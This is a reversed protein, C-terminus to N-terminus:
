ETGKLSPNFADRLGNGFLNFCIMLLSIIIAPFVLESPYTSLFAQNKSLIVGLSDLTSLGLGLYSITAESFITSPIMLVSRTVITGVANPLIHRFILTPTKAGLTKSALVYERGRYRYFQSRTTASTGIWGTLCLSLAFVFFNTGLKITLITMLVIYPIGGLIDTIREMTIDVTGGYYGSISGWIVGILINIASVVIGLILSTRLGSFVYKLLDKGQYETGFLHVPIDNYGLYKYMMVQCDFIYVIQNNNTDKKISLIETVSLDNSNKGNEEIVFSAPNQYLDDLAKLAEDKDEAPDELECNYNSSGWSVYGKKYWNWFKDQSITMHNRLGYTVLYMDYTIDARAIFTDTSEFREYSSSTWYSQNDTGGVQKEQLVVANADKVTMEEKFNGADGFSRANLAKRVAATLRGNSATTGTIRFSKLYTSTKKTAQGKFIIGLSIYRSKLVSAEAASVKTGTSVKIADNLADNLSFSIEQHPTIAANANKELAPGYDSTFDGNLLFYDDNSPTAGANATAIMLVAYEPINYADSNELTGMQYSVTYKNSFDYQYRYNYMFGYNGNVNQTVTAFGYSGSADAYPLYEAKYNEYKVIVNEDPYTEYQNFKLHKEGEYNDPDAIVNGEEDYYVPEGTEGDVDYPFVEGVSKTTGDWWGTGAPFLKMPLHTEYNHRESIDVGTMAMPLILACLFLFGLIIGGVVSSQNKTFRKMADKMFTTPKTTFKVDHISKDQQVFGFDSSNVEQGNVDKAEDGASFVFESSGKAESALYEIEENEM